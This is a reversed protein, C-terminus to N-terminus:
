ADPHGSGILYRQVVAHAYTNAPFVIGLDGLFAVALHFAGYYARSVASRGAAEDAAASAALRGALHIFAQGDIM